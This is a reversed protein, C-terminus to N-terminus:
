DISALWADLEAQNGAGDCEVTLDTAEISITPTQTDFISFTAETTTENGCDDTATFIVTASGTAGCEDSLSTFDNTWVVESCADSAASGGNSALWADLDTQNGAGDCEVNLNAAVIDIVPATSDEITFTASTTTSNGCNDTATFTITASGTNGCGDFLEVYDNTWVVDSCADTAASGGNSALWDALATQNGAGDCDVVQDQAQIDIVPVVTDEITITASTTSTNGCEDTATFIVTASGTAGCEDSLASYDNTWTIEGGCIDTSNAGGNSDLWNQIDQLNGNGDCEVTLDDAVVSITPVTTDEITFTAQSTSSNGCEDTATFTVNITGTEGCEDSLTTFNSSWTISGCAEVADAGGNSAL